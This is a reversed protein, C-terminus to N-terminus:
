GTRNRTNDFTRLEVSKVVFGPAKEVPGMVNPGLEVSFSFEKIIGGGGRSPRPKKRILYTIDNYTM